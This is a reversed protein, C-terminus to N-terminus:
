SLKIYIIIRNKGKASFGVLTEEGFRDRIVNRDAETAYKDSNMYGVNSVDVVRYMAGSKEMKIFDSVKM